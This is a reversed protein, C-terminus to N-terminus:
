YLYNCFYLIFHLIVHFLFIKDPPIRKKPLIYELISITLLVAFKKLSQTGTGLFKSFLNELKVQKSTNVTYGTPLFILRLPQSQHGTKLFEKFEQKVRQYLAQLSEKDDEIEQLMVDDTPTCSSTLQLEEHIDALLQIHPNAFRPLKEANAQIKDDTRIEATKLEDAITARLDEIKREADQLCLKMATNFAEESARRSAELTDMAAKFYDIKVFDRQEM